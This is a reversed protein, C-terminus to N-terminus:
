GRALAVNTPTPAPAVQCVCRFIILAEYKRGGERAGRPPIPPFLSSYFPILPFLPSYYKTGNFHHFFSELRAGRSAM